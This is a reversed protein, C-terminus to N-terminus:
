PIRSATLHSCGSPSLISSVESPQPSSKPFLISFAEKGDGERGENGMLVHEDAEFNETNKM